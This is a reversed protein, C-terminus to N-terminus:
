HPSDSIQPLIRARPTRGRPRGFLPWRQPNTLASGGILGHPDPGITKRMLIEARGAILFNPLVGVEEYGFARYFARGTENFDSVCLFFNKARSFVARELHALLAKGLGHRRAWPAVAFVELYEGLLFGPRIVAVGALVGDQVIVSAERGREEVTSRFFGDLVEATYGLTVWPESAALM